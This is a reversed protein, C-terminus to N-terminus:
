KKRVMPMDLFMKNAALTGMEETTFVKSLRWRKLESQIFILRRGRKYHPIQRQSTLQYLTDVTSKLFAAAERINMEEPFDTIVPLPKAEPETEVVGTTERIVKGIQIAEASLPYKQLLIEALLLLMDFCGFYRQILKIKDRDTRGTLEDPADAWTEISGTEALENMCRKRWREMQDFVQAVPAKQTQGAAFIELATATYAHSQYQSFRGRFYYYWDTLSEQEDTSQASLTVCKYALMRNYRARFNLTEPNNMAHYLFGPQTLAAPRTLM